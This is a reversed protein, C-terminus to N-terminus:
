LKWLICIHIYMKWFYKFYIWKFNTKCFYWCFLFTDHWMQIVKYKIWKRGKKDRDTNFICNLLIELINPMLYCVALVIYTHIYEKFWTRKVKVFVWNNKNIAGYKQMLYVFHLMVFCFAVCQCILPINDSNNNKM